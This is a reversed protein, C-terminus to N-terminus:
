GKEQIRCFMQKKDANIVTSVIVAPIAAIKKIKDGYFGNTLVPNLGKFGIISDYNRSKKNEPM